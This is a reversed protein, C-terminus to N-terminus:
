VPPYLPRPFTEVVSSSCNSMTYLRLIELMLQLQWPTEEASQPSQTPHQSAGLGALEASLQSSPVWM